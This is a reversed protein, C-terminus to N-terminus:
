RSFLSLNDILRVEGLYAAICIVIEKHNKVNSVKELTEADVIELYDLRWKSQGNILSKGKTQAYDVTNGSLLERKVMNLAEFLAPALAREEGSLRLNRSSMALGDSERRTPVAVIQINFSLDANLKRIIALQQFDKQGFFALHPSIINFLKSVIVAVGSFHGARFAGEMVKDLVGFDFKINPLEPFVEKESPMFLIDVGNERLLEKDKEITIPYADFDARQNFQIPNVFISVVVLDCKEKANQILALHGEHLAGMTPVLGITLGECKKEFLHSTLPMIEDFVHM